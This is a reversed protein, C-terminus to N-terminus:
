LAAGPQPYPQAPCDDQAFASYLSHLGRGGGSGLGVNQPLGLLFYSGVLWAGINRRGCPNGTLLLGNYQFEGALGSNGVYLIHPATTSEFGFNVTHKGHIMTLYDEAQIVTDHFQLSSTTASSRAM